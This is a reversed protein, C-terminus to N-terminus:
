RGVAPPTGSQSVGEGCLIVWANADFSASARFCRSQGELFALTPAVTPGGGVFDIEGGQQGQLTLGSAHTCKVVIRREVGTVSPLTLTVSDSCVAVQAANTINTTPATGYINVPLLGGGGGGAAEPAAWYMWGNARTHMAHGDTLPETTPPWVNRNIRLTSPLSHINM